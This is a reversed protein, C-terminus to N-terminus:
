AAERVAPVDRAPTEASVAVRFRRACQPCLQTIWRAMSPRLPAGIEELPRVHVSRLGCVDCDRKLARVVSM